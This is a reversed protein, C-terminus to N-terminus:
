TNENLNGQTKEILRKRGKNLILALCIFFIGVFIFGIGSRLLSSFYDIFSTIVLLGILSVGANIFKDKGLKTGEYILWLAFLLFCVNSLYVVFMSSIIPGLIFSLVAPTLVFFKLTM